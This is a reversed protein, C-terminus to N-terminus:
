SRLWFFDPAPFQTYLYREYAANFLAVRNSHQESSTKLQHPPSYQKNPFWNYALQITTPIRQRQERYGYSKSFVNHFFRQLHRDVGTKRLKLSRSQLQKADEDVHFPINNAKINIAAQDDYYRKM